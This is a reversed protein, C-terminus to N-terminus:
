MFMVRLEYPDVLGITLLRIIKILMKVDKSKNLVFDPYHGHTKTKLRDINSMPLLTM